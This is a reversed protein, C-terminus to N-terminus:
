AAKRRVLGLGLLGAGFLLLTAPAPVPAAQTEVTIYAAGSDFPSSNVLIDVSYSGAALLTSGTSYYGSDFAVDPNATTDGTGTTSTTFAFESNIFVDFIDGILYADTVKLLGPLLLDFTFSNGTTGVGENQCGAEAESGVGDFCFGYWGADPTIPGASAFGPVLLAAFLFVSTCFNKTTKM